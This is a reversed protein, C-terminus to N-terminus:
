LVATSIAPVAAIVLVGAVLAALYPWIAKMVLDPSEGGIRCAIYFGIGIPPAMLGVNMACVIVMAYHIEHVGMSQAIPFMIPALLLVAPLGELLCGLLLFLGITVVMFTFVGGPLTTLFDALDQVFGSQTIAWAM